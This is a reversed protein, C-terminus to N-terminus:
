DTENMASREAEFIGKWYDLWEKFFNYNSFVRFQLSSMIYGSETRYVRVEISGPTRKTVIGISISYRDSSGIDLVDDIAKKIEERTM